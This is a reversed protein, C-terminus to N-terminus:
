PVIVIQAPLNTVKIAKGLRQTATNVPIILGGPALAISGDSAGLYLVRGSPSFAANATESYGRPLFVPALASNSVLSIPQIWTAHPVDYALRGDPSMPLWVVQAQADVTIPELARGTVLGVPTIHDGAGVYATRGDPTVMFGNLTATDGNAPVPIPTGATNSATSIPTVFAEGNSQQSVVYAKGGPGVAIDWARGPVRIAPLRTGTALDVPTVGAAGVVYAMRGDPTLGFPGSGADGLNREAGTALNISLLCYGSRCFNKIPGFELAYATAGHPAILLESFQAVGAVLRIPRAAERTVTSIRTMYFDKSRPNVLDGRPQVVYSFAYLARGGPAAVLDTMYGPVKVPALATGSSLRIPVIESAIMSWVYATAPGRGTTAPARHATAGLIGAVAPVLAILAVGAVSAAAAELRRRRALRKGARLSNSVLQGMVPEGTAAHELLARLRSEDM